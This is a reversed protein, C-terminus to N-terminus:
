GKARVRVLDLQSELWALNKLVAARKAVLLKPAAALVEARAAEGLGITAGLWTANERLQPAPVLLLEPSHAVLFSLQRSTLQSMEERIVDLSEQLQELAGAKLMLQPAKRLCLYSHLVPEGSLEWDLLRFVDSGTPPSTIHLLQAISDDVPVPKRARKELETIQMQQQACTRDQSSLEEM